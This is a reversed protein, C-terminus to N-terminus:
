INELLKIRLTLANFISKKDSNPVDKIMIQFKKLNARILEQIAGTSM